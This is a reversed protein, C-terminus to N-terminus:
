EGLLPLSWSIDIEATAMSSHLDVFGPAVILGSADLVRTATGGRLGGIQAIKGDKIALDSVYRPTLSGDVITGGKLIDDFKPM